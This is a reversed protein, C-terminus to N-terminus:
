SLKFTNNAERQINVGLYDELEGQDEMRLEGQLDSIIEEIDEQSDIIHPTLFIILNTRRATKRSGRFLNGILPLDGLIPVKTEVALAM